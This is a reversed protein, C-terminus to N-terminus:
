NPLGTKHIAKSPTNNYLHNCIMNYSYYYWVCIDMTIIDWNQDVIVMLFLFLTFGSKTFRVKIIIFINMVFVVYCLFKATGMPVSMWLERPLILEWLFNYNLNMIYTKCSADIRRELLEWHKKYWFHQNWTILKSRTNL